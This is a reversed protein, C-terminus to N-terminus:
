KRKAVWEYADEVKDFYSYIVADKNQQISDVVKEVTSSGFVDEPMIVAGWRIGAKLALPRWVSDTWQQAEPPIIKFNRLDYVLSKSKCKEAVRIQAMAQEKYKEAGLFGTLTVLVANEKQLHAIEVGPAKYLLRPTPTELM